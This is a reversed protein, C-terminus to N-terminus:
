RRSCSRCFFSGVPAELRQAVLEFGLQDKLVDLNECLWESFKTENEWVERPNVKKLKGVM